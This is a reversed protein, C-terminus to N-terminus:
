SEPQFGSDRVVPGYEERERRILAAFDAPARSVTPSFDLREMAARLDANQSAQVIGQHLATVIQAPTNVPLLVGFWEEKTLDLRGQEAFTPIDPFRPNRQASSVALIRLGTGLQPTVDGLVGLFAAIRGGILDQVAPVSGRYSVHTMRLNLARAL